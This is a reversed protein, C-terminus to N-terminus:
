FVLRYEVRVIDKYWVDGTLARGYSVSFSNYNGLGFRAGFKANVITDGAADFVFTPTSGKGDLVTWGVFEAVPALWFGGDVPQALVLPNGVLFYSVGVGYRIINGAFDTGGIPIWDRLEGELILRDGFRQFALLAPELSVHNTGLGREADGTPIYTRFQFTLYRCGPDTILGLKVGAEMDGFGATNDNVEPNLFRVPLEVFGSLRQSAAIEVYSRIDQYDVGTEPLPPGPASPDRFLGRSVLFERLPGANRPAPLGRFCGCKAYFFEARDPVNNDYAADFRFRVMSRIIATDIYTTNSPMGVGAGVAAATMTPPALAEPAETPPPAELKPAPEEKKPLVEPKPAPKVEPAPCPFQPVPPPCPQYYPHPLHYQAAAPLAAVALVAGGLAARFSAGRLFWFRM